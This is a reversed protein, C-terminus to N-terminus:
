TPAVQLWSADTHHIPQSALQLQAYWNTALQVMRVQYHDLSTTTAMRSDSCTPKAANAGSAARVSDSQGVM